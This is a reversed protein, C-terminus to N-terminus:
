ATAWTREERSFESLSQQTYLKHYRGPERMLEDHSGSELIKGHEIVVIRDANRITSLRHAIVLSIRGRLLEGLGRQIHQETVTDVSSTAEDMVLIGPDALIARAFSILQKQGASLKSGGEGVQTEYGHEMAEIFEHAGARLAATRVEEETAGLNGYRINEMITGGFVHSSQLVIGLNSQLWHLSRERYDVGDILVQGETPEYFRCLVNVLSTKGGGTSGVIAINEGQRVTLNIDDLVKPGIEYQFGVHRMEITHIRDPYGDPAINAPRGEDRSAAVRALVEPSDAIAPKSEILSIIREASAQAMQMEAFWNALEQIPEFFHRAYTLFAILTGATITGWVVELGGFVLALGSAISGLTLVLPLYLSAQIRNLVSANYMEDTLKGFGRLNEAEKVFAKTTQVGMISENFSGTIKSNTKRVRRASKLIRRQFNLSLWALVPVVSLIILALPVHMFLMAVTIGVMMTSGWVLDLVGWALINALREIDSTMRAMLWGVPRFDYYSFSLHQLNEFGDRRIDHSVRTRLKGGFWIFSSISCAILIVFGLYLGAYLTLNADAGRTAVGDIVTRTILPFAIESIATSVACAVLMSVDFRYKLTYGLLRKWLDINMGHRYSDEDFEDQYNEDDFFDSM